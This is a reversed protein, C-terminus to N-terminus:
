NGTDANGVVPVDLTSPHRDSHYITAGVSTRSPQFAADTTTVTLRLTEGPDFRRQFAVMEVTATTVGDGEVLLPTVQNDILRETGDSTVRYLKAFLRTEPGAPDVALRLTPSGMLETPETIPFDFDASAVPSDGNVPFLQSTSSPVVSNAVWTTAEETADTLSLTRPAANSPPLGDATRWQSSQMEYFTVPPLDSQGEGRLHTDIWALAKEDAFEEHELTTLSIAELSHGGDTLVLRHDTDGLGNANWIAENPTFLTDPWGHIFLAPTTIDAVDQSPSRADLYAKAGTSLENELLGEILIEYLKPSQGRIFDLADDGVLHSGGAGALTLLLAWNRKIVGNPALSYTLDHWAWRPVLADLRDDSEPVGDGRAEAAAANLQIGGGYSTGDMGIRPDDPGDTLVNERGGLWTILTQADKVEKPGNINVQGGSEGFGRSDYTLTVYGNRAYMAARGQVLPSLTRNLGYGHTLLMAPQSGGQPEYLTAAIETGDFSDITVDTTTVGDGSEARAGGAFTLATTGGVLALFRRRTRRSADAGTDFSM